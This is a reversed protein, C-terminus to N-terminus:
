RKLKNRIFTFFYRRENRTLGLLFVVILTILFILITRLIFNLLENEIYFSLSVHLIGITILVVFAIPNIVTKLFVTLKFDVLKKLFLLRLILSFINTVIFVKFVTSADYGLYLFIYSLPLTLFIFFGVIIQYWKIRGNAQVLTMLTGSISDISIAILSLQVFKVSYIPVEELWSNLIYDTNYYIPLMVILIIFFLLRSGKLTYHVSINRDGSAYSQIIQPNLALQVNSAFMQVAAQVQLAIGYAANVTTGFFLNLIVNSGQSRAVSAINGFLNWGSYGILEKFYV